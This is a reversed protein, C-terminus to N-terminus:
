QNEQVYNDAILALGMLVLNCIAFIPKKMRKAFYNSDGGTVAVINCPHSELYGNLEFMIGSVVGSSISTEFDTGIFQPDEPIGVIPLSRSYRNLARIRSRCGLSINGGEYSGDEMIFDVTLTTGLDFITCPRSKFLHRCAIVSAARDYSIYSPLNEKELLERNSPDLIVLRRCISEYISRDNRSIVYSSCIVMVEPQEKEVLSCVFSSVHEGQYRFTKGITMGESWSAKVATNGIDVILNVM